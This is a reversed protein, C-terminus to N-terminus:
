ISEEKGDKLTGYVNICSLEEYKKAEIDNIDIIFSGIINGKKDKVYFFVKKSITPQPVPIQIIENWDITETKKNMELIQTSKTIGLYKVEIYASCRKDKTREKGILNEMDPFNEGKYISIELQKYTTKIQPPIMCDQDAAPDPTLEIKEDETSTISISLKLYGNIKTIDDAEPNALAVWELIDSSLDTADFYIHENFTYADCDNKPKSTRKTQGFCTIKIMPRPLHDKKISILNKIEEILVHVSYDGKKMLNLSNPNEKLATKVRQIIEENSPNPNEENKIESM